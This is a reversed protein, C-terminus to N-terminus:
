NLRRSLDPCVCDLKFIELFPSELTLRHLKNWHM